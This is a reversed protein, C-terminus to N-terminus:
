VDVVSFRVSPLAVYEPVDQDTNKQASHYASAPASESTGKQIEPADSLCLGPFCGGGCSFSFAPPMRSRPIKEGARFFSFNLLFPSQMEMM